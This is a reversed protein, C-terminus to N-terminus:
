KQALDAALEELWSDYLQKECDVAFTELAQLSAPWASLAEQMEELHGVEENIIGQVSLRVPYDNLFEQYVPYLEDARLEIALTVLLYSLDHLERGQLGAAKCARSVRADLLFLYSRSGSPALLHGRSYDPCAKPNIKHCLHKLFFAHRSEEAAHKLTTYTAHPGSQTEAIKTAGIHEMYSLTNLWQCHLQPDAVIQQLLSRLAVKERVPKSGMVKQMPVFIAM